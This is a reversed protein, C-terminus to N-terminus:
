VHRVEEFRPLALAAGVARAAKRAATLGPNGPTAADDDSCVVLTLAPFKGRLARAVPELNGANFAVATAHGTAQHLTAGTAYGECLCLVDQLRGIAHYCGRMRGGTLLTKRGDAGIFQLSRLEGDVDRLPIVLQGRLDRIGYAPVQKKVLYPHGNSAPKARDWLRLARKAAEAQVKATEEAHAARVAQMRAELAQREAPTMREPKEASWPCSQGTKWSGFAGFATADLHLVYWGNLSGAKDSDVRYRHVTGDGIIPVPKHMALGADVMAQYLKEGDTM